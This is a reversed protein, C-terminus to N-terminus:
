WSVFLPSDKKGTMKERGGADTCNQGCFDPSDFSIEIVLFAQSCSLGGWGNKEILCIYFGGVKDTQLIVPVSLFGGEKRKYAPSRGM